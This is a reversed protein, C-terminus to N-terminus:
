FDVAPDVPSIVKLQNLMDVSMREAGGHVDPLPCEVGNLSVPNEEWVTWKRQWKKEFAVPMPVPWEEINKGLCYDLSSCEKDSLNWVLMALCGAHGGLWGWSSLEEVQYLYLQQFVKWGAWSRPWPRLSGRFYLGLREYLQERIHGFPYQVGCWAYMYTFNKTLLSRYIGYSYHGSFLLALHIPLCPLDVRDLLLESFTGIKSDLRKGGVRVTDLLEDCARATMLNSVTRWLPSNYLYSLEVSLGCLDALVSKEINAGARLREMQWRKEWPCGPHQQRWWSAIAGPSHRCGICEAVAHTFTLGRLGRSFTDLDEICM